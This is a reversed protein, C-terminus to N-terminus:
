SSWWSVMVMALCGGIVVALMIDLTKSVVQRM